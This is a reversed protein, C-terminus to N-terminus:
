EKGTWWDKIAKASSGVTADYVAGGIGRVAGKLVNGAGELRKTDPAITVKGARENIGLAKLGKLKASNLLYNIEQQVGEAKARGKDIKAQSRASSAQAGQLTATSGEKMGTSLSKIDGKAGTPTSAGGQKYALIPNLGAARMDAMGRQYATNSMREQWDRQKRAEAASWANSAAQMGAGILSGIFVLM